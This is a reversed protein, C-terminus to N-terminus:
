RLDRSPKRRDKGERARIEEAEVILTSVKTDLLTALDQMTRLTASKAGREIDGIYRLSYGSAVAIDMQSLRKRDRRVFVAQGFAKELTTVARKKSRAM